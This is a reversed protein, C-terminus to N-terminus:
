RKILVLVAAIAAARALESNLWDQVAPPLVPYIAAILLVAAFIRYNESLAALGGRSAQSVVEDVEASRIVTLGEAAAAYDSSAIIPNPVSVHATVVSPYVTVSEGLGRVTALVEDLGVELAKSLKQAAAM